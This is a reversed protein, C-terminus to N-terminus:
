TVSDSGAQQSVPEAATYGYSIGSSSMSISIIYPYMTTGGGQAPASLRGGIVFTISSITDGSYLKYYDSVVVNVPSGSMSGSFNCVLLKKAEIAALVEAFTVDSSITGSNDTVTIVFPAFDAPKNQIAKSVENVVEAVNDGPVETPDGTGKIATVLKKLAETISM